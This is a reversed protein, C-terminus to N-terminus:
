NQKQSLQVIWAPSLGKPDFRVVDPSLYIYLLAASAYHLLLLM